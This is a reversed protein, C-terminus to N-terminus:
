FLRSFLHLGTKTADDTQPLYPQFVIVVAQISNFITHIAFCPLLSGSYARVITIALSLIGVATIVGLNNYYQNVHVLTFLTSVIVIAWLTGTRRQTAPFLVGRYVVEEAFPATLAAAFAITLRAGTSSEIIQEVQTKEGGILNSILLGVGLLGITTLISAWLGFNKSWHWGLTSWFPRKGFGTVLCWALGIQILHTPSTLVLNALIFNPDFNLNESVNAAFQRLEEVNTGYVAVMYVLGGITSVVFLTLTAAVWLLVASGLSYPPNDPSPADHMAHPEPTPTEPSYTSDSM